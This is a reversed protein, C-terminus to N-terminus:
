LIMSVKIVEGALKKIIGVRNIIAPKPDSKKLFFSWKAFRQILVVAINAESQPNIKEREKM